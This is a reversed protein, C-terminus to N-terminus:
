DVYHIFVRGQYLLQAPPLVSSRTSELHIETEDWKFWYHTRDREKSGLFGAVVQGSRSTALAKLIRRLSIKISCTLNYDM